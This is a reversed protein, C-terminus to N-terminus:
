TKGRSSDADSAAHDFIFTLPGVIMAIAMSLLGILAAVAAWIQLVGSRYAEALIFWTVALLPPVVALLILLTRLRFRM